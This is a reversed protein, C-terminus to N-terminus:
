KFSNVKQESLVSNLLHRGSSRKDMESLTSKIFPINSANNLFSDRGVIAIKIYELQECQERYSEDLSYLPYEKKISM